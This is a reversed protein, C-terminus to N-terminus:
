HVYCTKHPAGCLIHNGMVIHGYLVVSFEQQYKALIGGLLQNIKEDPTLLLMAQECRITVLRIKKPDTNRIRRGM